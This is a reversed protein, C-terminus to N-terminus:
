ISTPANNVQPDPIFCFHFASRTSKGLTPVRSCFNLGCWICMFDAAMTQLMLTAQISRKRPRQKLVDREFVRVGLKMSWRMCCTESVVHHLAARMLLLSTSVSGCRTSRSRDVMTGLVMQDVADSGRDRGIAHDRQM